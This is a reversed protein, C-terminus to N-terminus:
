ISDEAKLKRGEATIFQKGGIKIKLKDNQKKCKSKQNAMRVRWLEPDGNYWFDATICSFDGNKM